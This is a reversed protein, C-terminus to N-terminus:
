DRMKKVEQYGAFHQELFKQVMISSLETIKKKYDTTAITM